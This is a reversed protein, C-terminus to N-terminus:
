IARLVLSFVVDTLGVPSVGGAYFDVMLGDGAQLIANSTKLIGPSTTTTYARVTGAGTTMDINSALMAAGSRAPTTGSPVRRVMCAAIGVDDVEHRELVQILQYPRQAIFFICDSDSHSTGSWNWPFTTTVPLTVGYFGRDKLVRIEAVDRNTDVSANTNLSQASETSPEQNLEDDDM